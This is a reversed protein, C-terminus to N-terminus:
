NKNYYEHWLILIQLLSIKKIQSCVYTLNIFIFIYCFIIKILYNSINFLVEIREVRNIAVQMSFTHQKIYLNSHTNYSLLLTNCVIYLVFFFIYYFNLKSNMVGVINMLKASKKKICIFEVLVHESSM